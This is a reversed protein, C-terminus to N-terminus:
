EQFSIDREHRVEPLIMPMRTVLDQQAGYNDVHIGYPCNHHDPVQNSLMLCHDSTHEALTVLRRNNNNNNLMLSSPVM